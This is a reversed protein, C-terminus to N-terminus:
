LRNISTWDRPLLIFNSWQVAVPSFDEDRPLTHHAMRYWVVIDKANTNQSNVFESVNSGCSSAPNNVAFRECANYATIYVDNKLWPSSSNGKSQQAYNLLVMEYSVPQNANNTESQDKIRWFKKDAPTFSAALESSITQTQKTKTLRDSSPVSKIQEVVDNSNSSGIDFDLRWFFHDTFSTSLKNQSTVPWGANSDTTTKTFQGTIGVGTEITGNELFTSRIIFERSNINSASLIELKSGQRRINDRYRYIYGNASSVECLVNRGAYEHLQGGECMSANLTQLSNGGLGFDTVLFQDASDDDYETQIQSLSMEGIVKRRNSNAAKYHIDSLVVGEEDRVEWCLDWAAGSSFTKSITNGAACSFTNPRAFSSSAFLLSSLTFLAFGAKIIKNSM